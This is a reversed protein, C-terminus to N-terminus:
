DKVIVFIVGDIEESELKGSKIDNYIAQTSKCKSRAYTSVKQRVVKKTAM